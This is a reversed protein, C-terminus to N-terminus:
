DAYFLEEVAVCGILEGIGERGLLFGRLRSSNGM